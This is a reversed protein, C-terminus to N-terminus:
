ELSSDLLDRVRARGMERAKRIDEIKRGALGEKQLKRARETLFGVTLERTEKFLRPAVISLHVLLPESASDIEAQRKSQGVNDRMQIKQFQCLQSIILRDVPSDVTPDSLHSSVLNRLEWVAFLDVVGKGTAGKQAAMQSLASEFFYTFSVIDLYPNGCGEPFPLPAQVQTGGSSPSMAASARMSHLVSCGWLLLTVPWKQCLLIKLLGM